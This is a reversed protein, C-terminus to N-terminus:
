IKIRVNGHKSRAFLLFFILKQTISLIIENASWALAVTIVADIFERPVRIFCGCENRSATSGPILCLCLATESSMVKVPISDIDRGISPIAGLQTFFEKVLLGAVVFTSISSVIRPTGLRM